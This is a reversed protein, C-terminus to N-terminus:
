DKITQVVDNIFEGAIPSIVYNKRKIWGIEFNFGPSKIPLSLNPQSIYLNQAAKSISATKAIEIVQQIQKFEM